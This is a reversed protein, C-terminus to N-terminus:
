GVYISRTRKRGGMCVVRGQELAQVQEVRQVAVAAADVRDRPVRGPGPDEGAGVVVPEDDRFRVGSLHLLSSFAVHSCEKSFLIKPHLTNNVELM